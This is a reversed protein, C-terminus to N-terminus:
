YFQTLIERIKGLVILIIKGQKAPKDWKKVIM